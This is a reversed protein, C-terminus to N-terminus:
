HGSDLVLGDCLGMRQDQCSVKETLREVPFDLISLYNPKKHLFLVLKGREPVVDVRASANLLSCEKGQPVVVKTGSVWKLFHHFWRKQVLSDWHSHCVSEFALWPRGWCDPCM